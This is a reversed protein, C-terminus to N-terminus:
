ELRKKIKNITSQFLIQISFLKHLILLFSFSFFNYHRQKAGQLSAIINSEDDHVINLKIDDLYTSSNARPCTFVLNNTKNSNRKACTILYGMHRLSPFCLKWLYKCGVLLCESDANSAFINANSVLKCDSLYAKMCNLSMHANILYFWVSGGFDDCLFQFEHFHQM